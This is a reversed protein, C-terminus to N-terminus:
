DEIICWVDCEPMCWYTEDGVTVKSGAAPHFLIRDGVKVTMPILVATKESYKGPGVAAITGRTTKEDIAMGPLVIGGTTVTEPDTRKVLIRDGAPKLIM